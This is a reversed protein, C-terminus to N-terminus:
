PLDELQSRHIWGHQGDETEVGYWYLTSVVIVVHSGAPLLKLSSASRFPASKLQAGPPSVVREVEHRLRNVHQEMTEDPARALALELQEQKRKKAAAAAAQEHQRRQEAEAADKKQLKAKELRDQIEGYEAAEVSGNSTHARHHLDDVFVADIRLNTHQDDAHQVIYRVALIGSDGSDKFNRPDLANSRVKYFEKGGLTWKPFVTTSEAEAAGGVYEDKNYEKTGEIRGDGAVDRVAMLLDDEKAPVTVSLGAGYTEHPKPYASPALVGNILLGALIYGCWNTASLLRRERVSVPYRKKIQQASGSSVIRSRRHMGSHAATAMM